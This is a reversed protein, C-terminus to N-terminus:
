TEETDVPKKASTKIGTFMASVLGTKERLESVVVGIIHLLIAGLLAYFVYVHTNIFPKRFDRMAKYNEENVNVKSYPKIEATNNKDEAIWEVIQQGFPPFYIDTGALVLGTIAQTSLLLFLFAVMIRGLPNHGLFFAPNGNKEGEVYAKFSARHEKTFPIISKWRSYRDGIFAWILRWGLNLVFAYGIYVHITKLLIKGDTSIGLVKNNFIVLGVGLLGIVCIFNIWHFIRVARSWAYYQKLPENASSTQIMKTERLWPGAIM